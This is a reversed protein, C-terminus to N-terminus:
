CCLFNRSTRSSVFTHWDAKQQQSVIGSALFKYLLSPHNQLHGKVLLFAPCWPPFLPFASCLHRDVPVAEKWSPRVDWPECWRRVCMCAPLSVKQVKGKLSNWLLIMVPLIKNNKFHPTWEGKRTMENALACKLSELCSRDLYLTHPMLTEFFILLLLLILM